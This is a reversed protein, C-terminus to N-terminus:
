WPLALTSPNKARWAWDLSPGGDTSMWSMKPLSSCTTTSPVAEDVARSPELAWHFYVWTKWMRSPFVVSTQPIASFSSATSGKRSPRGSQVGRPARPLQASLRSGPLVAAVTGVAGGLGFPNVIPTQSLPGPALSAGVMDLAAGAVAAVAVLRWRDSRLRGDPVLLAPLIIGLCIAPDWNFEGVVVALQAALPLPYGGEVLRDVWAQGPITLSWAVGSTAYLWGIPNAPRRLSLVLGVTAYGLPFALAFAAGEALVGLTLPRTVALTAVLGAACCGFTALWL